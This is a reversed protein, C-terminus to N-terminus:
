TDSPIGDVEVLPYGRNENLGGIGRNNSSCYSGEM